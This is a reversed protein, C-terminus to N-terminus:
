GLGGTTRRAERPEHRGQAGPPPRGRECRSLVGTDYTSRGTRRHARQLDLRHGRAIDRADLLPLRAFGAEEKGGGADNFFAAFV